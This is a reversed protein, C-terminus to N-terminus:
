FKPSACGLPDKKGPRITIGFTYTFYSDNFDPNAAKSFGDLYDTSTLRYAVEAQVAIKPSLIMKVGGGLPFVPISSPTEYALDEPLKTIVNAVAPFYDKDLGSADRTVDIFAIGVGGFLYPSIGKIAYNKGTPDWVLRASLEYVPSTFNFNRHRKYEPNKYRADDGKLKGITFDARISFADGILRSVNLDLALKQTRMSGVRGNSLDGQYVMLGPNIGFEYNTKGTQAFCSITLIFCAIFFTAAKRVTLCMRFTSKIIIEPLLTEIL